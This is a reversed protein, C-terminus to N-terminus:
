FTVKEKFSALYPFIPSDNVFINETEHSLYYVDEPNLNWLYAAQTILTSFTSSSSTIWFSLNQKGDYSIEFALEQM